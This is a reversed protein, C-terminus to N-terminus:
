EPAAGRDGRGELFRVVRYFRATRDRKASLRDRDDSNM